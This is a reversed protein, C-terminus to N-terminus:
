AAFAFSFFNNLIEKKPNSLRRYWSLRHHLRRFKQFFLQDFEKCSWYRDYVEHLGHKSIVVSSEIHSEMVRMKWQNECDSSLNLVARDSFFCSGPYGRNEFVGSEANDPWTPRVFTHKSNEYGAKQSKTHAIARCLLGPTHCIRRYLYLLIPCARGESQRVM